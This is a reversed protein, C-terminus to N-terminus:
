TQSVATSSHLKRIDSRMVHAKMERNGSKRYGLFEPKNSRRLEVEEYPRGPVASLEKLMQQSGM